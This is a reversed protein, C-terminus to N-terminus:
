KGVGKRKTATRADRIAGSIVRAHSLMDTVKSGRDELEQLTALLAESHENAWTWLQIDTPPQPKKPRGVQRVAAPVTLDGRRVQDVLDPAEAKVLKLDSVYRANVGLARAAQERAEGQDQEELAALTRSRAEPAKPLGGPLRAVFRGRGKRTKQFKRGSQNTRQRERAAAEYQPLLDLAIAARQGASLHRRALNASVVVARLSAEDTLGDYEILKPEIKTGREQLLEIALLRHRGDLVQGKHVLISERQGKEQIDTVLAAFEHMPMYPFLQAVPHWKLLVRKSKPDQPSPPLSVGAEYERQLRGYTDTEGLSVLSGSAQIRAMKQLDIESM